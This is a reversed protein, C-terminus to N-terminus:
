KERNSSPRQREAWKLAWSKASRESLAQHDKRTDSHTNPGCTGDPEVIAVFWQKCWGNPPRIFLHAGDSLYHHLKRGDRQWRSM